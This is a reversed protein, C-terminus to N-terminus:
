PTGGAHALRDDEAVACLLAMCTEELDESRAGALTQIHEYVDIPLIITVLKRQPKKKAAM